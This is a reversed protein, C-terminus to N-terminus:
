QVQATEIKGHCSGEFPALAKLWLAHLDDVAPAVLDFEIKDQRFPMESKELSEFIDWRDQKARIKLGPHWNTFCQEVHLRVVEKMNSWASDQNLGSTVIDFDLCHGIWRGTEADKTLLCSLVKPLIEVGDLPIAVSSM